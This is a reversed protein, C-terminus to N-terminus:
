REWVFTPRMPLNIPHRRVEPKGAPTKFRFRKKKKAKAKKKEETLIEETVLRRKNLLEEILEAVRSM